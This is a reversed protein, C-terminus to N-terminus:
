QCFTDEYAYVTATLQVINLVMNAAADYPPPMLGVLTEVMPGLTM